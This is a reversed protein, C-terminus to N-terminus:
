SRIDAQHSPLNDQSSDPPRHRRAISSRCRRAFRFRLSGLREFRIEIAAGPDIFDDHDLGTCDPITGLGIVTGPKIPTIFGLWAFVDEAEHRLERYAREVNMYLRTPRAM